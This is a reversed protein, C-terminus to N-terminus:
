RRSAQPPRRVGTIRPDTAEVASLAVLCAFLGVAIAQHVAGAVVQSWLAGGAFIQVVLAGLAVQVVVAGAAAGAIRRSVAERRRARLWALAVSVVVAAAFLRHTFHLTALPDDGPAAGCLPWDPCALTAGAKATMAGTAAAAVTLVAAVTEPVRVRLGSPAGARARAHLILALLFLAVVLHAAVSWASNRDLVTFGGLGAQVLLLLLALGALWPLAPAEVRRRWAVVALALIVPGVLAAANFRHGWEAMVQWWAYDVEPLSALRGPTPFWLGYCLPWDPCALGSGTLRVVAGLVIQFFVLAAAATALRRFATM